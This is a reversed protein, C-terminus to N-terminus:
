ESYEIQEILRIVDEDDHTDIEVLETHELIAEYEARIEEEPMDSPPTPWRYSIQSYYNVTGDGNGSYAVLGMAGAEGTLHIIDEPYTPADDIVVNIPEGAPVHRVNLTGPDETSGLQLWVRAYEIEQESYDALPDNEAPNQEANGDESEQPDEAAEDEAAGEQNSGEELEDQETESANDDEPEEEAVEETEEEPSTEEETNGCGVLLLVVSSYSLFKIWNKM